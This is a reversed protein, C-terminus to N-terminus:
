MIDNIKYINLKLRLFFIYFIVNLIEYGFIYVILKFVNLLRYGCFKNFLYVLIIEKNFYGVM